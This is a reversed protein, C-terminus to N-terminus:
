VFALFPFQMLFTALLVFGGALLAIFAILRAFVRATRVNDTSITHVDM